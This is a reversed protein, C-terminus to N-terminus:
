KITLLLRLYKKCNSNFAYNHAFSLNGLLFHTLLLPYPHHLMGYIAFTKLHSHISFMYFYSLFAVVM